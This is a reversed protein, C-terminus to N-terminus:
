APGESLYGGDPLTDASVLPSWALVDNPVLRVAHQVCASHPSWRRLFRMGVTSTEGNTQGPLADGHVVELEFGGDGHDHSEHQDYADGEDSQELDRIESRSSAEVSARPAECRPTSPM